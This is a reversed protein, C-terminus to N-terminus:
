IIITKNNWIYGNKIASITASTVGFKKAIKVQTEKGIKCLSRIEKVKKWTLKASPHNEGFTNILGTERAHILNYGHSCWELNTARSDRKKGNIHNVNEEGNPNPVFAKAVLRHITIGKKKGGISLSLSPYGKRLSTKLINCKRIRGLNSIEYIGKYGDVPKWIEININRKKRPPLRAM